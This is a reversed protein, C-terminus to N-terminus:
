VVVNFDFGLSKRPFKCAGNRKVGITDIVPSESLNSTEGLVSEWPAPWFDAAAELTVGLRNRTSAFRLDESQRFVRLGHM